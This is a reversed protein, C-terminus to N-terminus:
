FSWYFYIVVLILSLATSFFFDKIGPLEFSQIVKYAILLYILLPKFDASKGSVIVENYMIWFFLATIGIYALWLLTKIVPLETDRRFFSTLAGLAIAGLCILASRPQNMLTLLYWVVGASIIRDIVLCVLIVA